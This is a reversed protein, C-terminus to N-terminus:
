AARKMWERVVARRLKTLPREAELLTSEGVLLRWPMVSARRGAPRRALRGHIAETADDRLLRATVELAGAVSTEVGCSRAAEALWEVDIPGAAGRCIQRIDCLQQLRDFRHGLVAHVAAILLLAAPTTRLLQSQPRREWPFADYDLSSCRRQAPSNILNWHIDVRVLPRDGSDWTREGYDGAHRGCGAERFGLSEMVAAAAPMVKRPVFLDIDRFPRLAASPYLRDAFDEGKIIGAHVGAEALAVAIRDSRQRLVLSQVAFGFWGDRATATAIDVAAAAAATTGRVIRESGLTSAIRGVNDLVAGTVAHEAALALLRTMGSPDLRTAPLDACGQPDCLRMLWAHVPDHPV